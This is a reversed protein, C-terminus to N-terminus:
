MLCYCCKSERYLVYMYKINVFIIANSCSSMEGELSRHESEHTSQHEELLQRLNLIDSEFAAHLLQLETEEM